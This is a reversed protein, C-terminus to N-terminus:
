FGVSWRSIKKPAPTAQTAYFAVYADQSSEIRPFAPNNSTAATMVPVRHVVKAPDPASFIGKVAHSNSKRPQASKTSGKRREEEKNRSKMDKTSDDAARSVSSTSMPKGSFRLFLSFLSPGIKRTLRKRKQAADKSHPMRKGETTPVKEPTKGRKKKQSKKAEKRRAERSVEGTGKQGNEKQSLVKQSLQTLFRTAGSNKRGEPLANRSQTRLPTSRGSRTRAIIFSNLGELSGMSSENCSPHRVDSVRTPSEKEQVQGFESSILMDEDGHEMRGTSRFTIAEHVVSPERKDSSRFGLARSSYEELM